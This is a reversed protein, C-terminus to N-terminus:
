HLVVSGDGPWHAVFVGTKLGARDSRAFPRLDRDAVQVQAEDVFVFVIAGPTPADAFLEVSLFGPVDDNSGTEGVFRRQFGDFAAVDPDAMMMRAVDQHRELWLRLGQASLDEDAPVLSGIRTAAARSELGEQVFAAAAMSPTGTSLLLAASSRAQPNSLVARRVAEFGWVARTRVGGELFARVNGPGEAIETIPEGRLWRLTVAEPEAVRCDADPAFTPFTLVAACVAALRGLVEDGVQRAGVAAEITAVDHRLTNVLDSFRAALRPSIDSLYSAARQQSAFRRVLLRSRRDVVAVVLRRMAEGKRELTRRFLSGRMVEDLQRSADEETLDAGELLANLARDLEDVDANYQEDDDGVIFAENMTRDVNVHEALFAAREETFGGLKEMLRIVLTALGSELTRQMTARRLYQWDRERERAPYDKLGLSYVVKGASDVFARGARGVVNLFDEETIRRAIGDSEYRRLAYFVVTSATVNLGQAITPSAVTLGLLRERM